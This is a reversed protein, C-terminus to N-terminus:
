PRLDFPRICLHRRRKRAKCQCFGCLKELVRVSEPHRSEIISTYLAAVDYIRVHDVLCSYPGKEKGKRLCSTMWDWMEIRRTLYNIPELPWGETAVVYRTVNGVGMTKMEEISIKLIKRM